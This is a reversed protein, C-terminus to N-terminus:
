LLNRIWGVIQNYIDDPVVEIWEPGKLMKKGVYTIPPVPVDERRDNRMYENLRDISASDPVQITVFLEKEENVLIKEKSLKHSLEPYTHMTFNWKQKDNVIQEIADVCRPVNINEDEDGFILLTPCNIKPYYKYPNWKVLEITRPTYWWQALTDIAQDSSLKGFESQIIPKFETGRFVQKFSKAALRQISAYDSNKCAIERNIRCVQDWTKASMQAILSQDKSDTIKEGRYVIYPSQVGQIIPVFLTKWLPINLAKKLKNMDDYWEVGTTSPTSLLELFSINHNRSAVIAAACGTESFGIIGIKVRKFQKQSKLFHYASEMDNALSPVTQAVFEKSRSQNPNTFEFPIKPHLLMVGVNASVLKRILKPIFAITDKNLTFDPHPIDLVVDVSMIVMAKVKHNQDPLYLTAKLPIQTKDPCVVEHFHPPTSIIHAVGLYDLPNAERLSDQITTPKGGAQNRNAEGYSIQTFGLLMVVIWVTKM